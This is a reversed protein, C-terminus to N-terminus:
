DQGKFRAEATAILRKYFRTEQVGRKNGAVLLIAIRRRDFAFLVRWVGDDADFRLEKLNSIKSGHLTDVKPRGLAPGRQALLQLHALLEDQVIEGLAKFEPEFAQHFEVTWDMHSAYLM